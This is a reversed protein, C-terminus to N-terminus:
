MAPSAPAHILILTEVPIRPQCTNNSSCQHPATISWRGGMGVEGVAGRALYVFVAFGCVYGRM